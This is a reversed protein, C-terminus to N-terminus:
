VGYKLDCQLLSSLSKWHSKAAGTIVLFATVATFCSIDSISNIDYMYYYIVVKQDNLDKRCSDAHQSTRPQM